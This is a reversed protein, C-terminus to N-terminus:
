TVLNPVLESVQAHYYFIATLAGGPAPLLISIPLQQFPYGPWFGAGQNDSWESLSGIAERGFFKIALSFAVVLRDGVGMIKSFSAQLRFKM